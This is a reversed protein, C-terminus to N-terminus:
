YCERLYVRKQSPDSFLSKLWKPADTGNYFTGTNSGLSTGSRLIQLNRRNYSGSSRRLRRHLVTLAVGLAVGSVFAVSRMTTSATLFIM